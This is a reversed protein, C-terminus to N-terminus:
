KLTLASQVVLQRNRVFCRNVAYQPEFRGATASTADVHPDQLEEQPRERGNRKQCERWHGHEAQAELALPVAWFLLALAGCDCVAARLATDHRAIDNGASQGLANETQPCNM